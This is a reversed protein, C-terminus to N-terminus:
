LCGWHVKGSHVHSTPSPLREPLRHRREWVPAARALDSRSVSARVDCLLRQQESGGRLVLKGPM